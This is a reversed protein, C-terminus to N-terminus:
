TITKLFVSFDESYSQTYKLLQTKFGRFFHKPLPFASLERTGAGAAGSYNGTLGGGYRQKGFKFATASMM